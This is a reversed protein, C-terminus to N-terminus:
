ASKLNERILATLGSPYLQLDETKIESIHRWCLISTSSDRRQPHTVQYFASDQPTIDHVFAIEHGARGEYTFINEIVARKEGVAIELGLEEMFERQLAHNVREGFEVGGGLPRYFAAGTSHDVGRELLLRGDQRQM